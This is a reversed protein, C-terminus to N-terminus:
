RREGTASAAQDRPAIVARVRGGPNNPGVAGGEVSFQEGISDWIILRGTIEDLAHGGRLRAVRAQGDFRVTGTRGDYVIQQASGEVYEDLNDRKQRYQANQGNAGSLTALQYGEPTERLELKEARMWLSGQAVTVNGSCLSTQRLLNVTCPKDSELTMPRSRDAKEAGAPSALLGCFVLTLGALVGRRPSPHCIPHPFPM